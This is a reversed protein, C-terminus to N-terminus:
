SLPEMTDTPEQPPYLKKKAKDMINSKVGCLMNVATKGLHRNFKHKFLIRFETGFDSDEPVNGQIAAIMDDVDLADVTIPEQKDAFQVTIATDDESPLLCLTPM